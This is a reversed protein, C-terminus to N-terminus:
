ARACIRVVSDFFQTIGEVEDSHPGGEMAIFIGAISSSRLKEILSHIFRETQNPENYILLTSLSDLIVLDFKNKTFLRNVTISLGTLSGPAGAYTARKMIWHGHSFAPSLWSPAIEPCQGDVIFLKPVEICMEKLESFIDYFPKNLSILTIELDKFRKLLRWRLSPYNSSDVRILIVPNNVLNIKAIKRDIKNSKM